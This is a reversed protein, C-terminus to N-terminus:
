LHIHHFPLITWFNGSHSNSFCSSFVTPRCKYISFFYKEVPCYSMKSEPKQMSLSITSNFHPPIKAYASISFCFYQGEFTGPSANSNCILKFNTLSMSMTLLFNFRHFVEDPSHFLWIVHHFDHSSTTCQHCISALLSTQFPHITILQVPHFEVVCFLKVPM